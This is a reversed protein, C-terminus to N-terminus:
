CILANIKEIRDCYCGAMVRLTSVGFCVQVDAFLSVLLGCGSGVRVLLWCDMFWSGLDLTLELSEVLSPHLLLM